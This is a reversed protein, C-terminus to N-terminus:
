SVLFRNRDEPNPIVCFAKMIKKRRKAIFDYGRDRIFRPVVIFVSLLPYPFRLFRVVKIAATSKSYLNGDSYFYFTSLDPEEYQNNSFFSLSFESQLASFYIDSTKEHKLVFQVTANCFGCDGDYFIIKSPNKEM